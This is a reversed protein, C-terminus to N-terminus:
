GNKGLVDAVFDSAKVYTRGGLNAHSGEPSWRGVVGVVPDDDSFKMTKEYTYFNYGEKSKQILIYFCNAMAKPKPFKILISTEDKLVESSIGNAYDNSIVETAAMRLHSLDGQLLDAYFGGDTTFTWEPLINHQFFYVKKSTPVEETKASLSSVEQKPTSNCASLFIAIILIYIKM